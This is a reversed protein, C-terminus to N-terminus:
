GRASSCKHQLTPSCSCGNSLGTGGLHDDRWACPAMMKVIAANGEYHIFIADREFSAPVSALM